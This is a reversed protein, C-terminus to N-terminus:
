VDNLQKLAPHQAFKPVRFLTLILDLLNVSRDVLYKRWKLEILWLTRHLLTLFRSQILSLLSARGCGKCREGINSAFGVEGCENYLTGLVANM